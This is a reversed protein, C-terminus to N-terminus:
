RKGSRRFIFKPESGTTFTAAFHTGDRGRWEARFRAGPTVTVVPCYAGTTKLFCIMLRLSEPSGSGWPEGEEQMAEVLETLRDALRKEYLLASQQRLERIQDHIQEVIRTQEDQDSMM